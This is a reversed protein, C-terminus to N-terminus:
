DNRLFRQAADPDDNANLFWLDYNLGGARAMEALFPFEFRCPGCWSAWINIAAPRTMSTTDIEISEDYLDTFYWDGFVTGAPANIESGNMAGLDGGRWRTVNHTRLNQLHVAEALENIRQAADGQAAVPKLHPNSDLFSWCVLGVLLVIKVANKMM